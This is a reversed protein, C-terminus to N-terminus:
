NIFGNAKMAQTSYIITMIIVTIVKAMTMPLIETMIIIIIIIIIIITIIIIDRLKYYEANPQLIRGKFFRPQLIRRITAIICM